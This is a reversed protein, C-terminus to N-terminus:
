HRCKPRRWGRAAWVWTMITRRRLSAASCSRYVSSHINRGSESDLVGGLQRRENLTVAERREDRMVAASRKGAMKWHKKTRINPTATRQEGVHRAGIRLPPM